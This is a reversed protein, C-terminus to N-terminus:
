KPGLRRLATAAAKAGDEAAAAASRAADRRIDGALIIGPVESEFHIDVSAYGHDDLSLLADLCDTAPAFGVHVLVGHADLTQRAGSAADEITVGTVGDDGVIDIARRGLRIDLIENGDAREQLEQRASLQAAAEIVFVKAAFKALYLAEIIGADGGGCVAVSKDRYLGADCVACHIVGKGELCAEAAVGLPKPILGAAVIVVGATYAAGDALSVAKAASYSEIEDVTGIELRAGAAEAQDALQSGLAPGAIRAGPGPYDEAWELNMLQGGFAEKELALVSRGAEAIRRAATLGAPGGGIVIADFDAL